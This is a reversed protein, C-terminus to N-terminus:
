YLAQQLVALNSEMIGLYTAGENIRVRNVSQLSDMVLIKQDKTNTKAIVAKALEQDGSETVMVYPLENVNVYDILNALTSFSVEVEASCGSFAAEHELGYDKAMYSFPFRDAFLLKNRKGGGVCELYKRDLELLKASYAEANKRFTDANEPDLAALLETIEAIMIDANRLSLWVHEDATHDHGEHGEEHADGEHEHESEIPDIVDILALAKREKNAPNKLADPVWKDSDGGIYIFLDCTSIAYLDNANTQYNHLDAGSDMLLTLKINSDEGIINRVWDYQPFVTCIVHFKGDEAPTGCGAVGLLLLAVLLIAIFKKM